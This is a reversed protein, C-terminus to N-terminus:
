LGALIANLAADRGTDTMGSVEAEIVAWAAAVDEESPCLSPHRWSVSLAEYSSLDSAPDFGLDMFGLRHLCIRIDM